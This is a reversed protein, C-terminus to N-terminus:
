HTSTCSCFIYINYLICITNNLALFHELVLSARAAIYLKFVIIASSLTETIFSDDTFLSYNCVDLQYFKRVPFIQLPTIRDAICLTLIIHGSIMRLGDRRIM